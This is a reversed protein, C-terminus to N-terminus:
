DGEHDSGADMYTRGFRVDEGIASRDEESVEKRLDERICATVYPAALEGWTRALKAQAETDYGCLQNAPIFYARSYEAIGRQVADQVAQWDFEDLGCGNV